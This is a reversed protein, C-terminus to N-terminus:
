PPPSMPLTIPEKQNLSIAFDLTGNVRTNPNFRQERTFLEITMGARSSENM